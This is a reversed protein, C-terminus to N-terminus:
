NCAFFRLKEILRRNATCSSSKLVLAIAYGDIKNLLVIIGRRFM